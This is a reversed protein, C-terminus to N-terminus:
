VPTATLVGGPATIRYVQAGDTLSRWEDNYERVVNTPLSPEEVGAFVTTNRWEWSTIHARANQGTGSPGVLYSQGFGRFVYGSQVRLETDPGLTFIADDAGPFDCDFFNAQDFVVTCRDSFLQVLGGDAAKVREMHFTSIVFGMCQQFLIATDTPDVWEINFQSFASETHINFHVAQRCVGRQGPISGNFNNVYINQWECGTSGGDPSICEIGIDSFESVRVRHFTCSFLRQFGDLGTMQKVGAGLQFCFVDDVESQSCNGMLGLGVATPPAFRDRHTLTMGSVKQRAGGTDGMMVVPVTPDTQHIVTTRSNGGILQQGLIGRMDVPKSITYTVNADLRWPRGPHETRLWDFAADDVAVNGTGVEPDWEHISISGDRQLVSVTM